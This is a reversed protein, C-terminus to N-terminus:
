MSRWFKYHNREMESLSPMPFFRSKEQSAFMFGHRVDKYSSKNFDTDLSLGKTHKAPSNRMEEVADRLKSPHVNTIPSRMLPDNRIGEMFEPIDLDLQTYFLVPAGKPNEPATISKGFDVFNLNSLVLMRLPAIEAFIRQERQSPEYEMEAPELGMCAGEPTTLYLTQIADLDIHELVRYSSIFRTAKPRGDEHPVLGEMGKDIDFYSNRYATDVEAFVVKGDYHRTSGSVYHRAFQKPTYQSAVLAQNPYLIVYLHSEYAHNKPSM